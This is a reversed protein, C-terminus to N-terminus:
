PHVGWCIPYGGAVPDSRMMIYYLSAQLKKRNLFQKDLSGGLFGDNHVVIEAGNSDLLCAKPTSGTTPVRWEKRRVASASIVSRRGDSLRYPILGPPYLAARLLSLDKTRTWSAWGCQVFALVKM